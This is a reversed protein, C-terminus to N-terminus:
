RVQAAAMLDPIGVVKNRVLYSTDEEGFPAINWMWNKGIWPLKIDHLASFKAILGYDLGIIERELDAILCVTGSFNRLYNLHAKILRQAIM